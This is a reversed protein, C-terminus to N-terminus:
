LCCRWCLAACASKREYMRTRVHISNYSFIGLNSTQVSISNIEVRISGFLCGVIMAICRHSRHQHQRSSSFARLYYFNIFTEILNSNFCFFFFQFHFYFVCFMFCCYLTICIYCYIILCRHVIVNLARLQINLPKKNVNNANTPLLLCGSPRTTIHARCSLKFINYICIYQQKKAIFAFLFKIM